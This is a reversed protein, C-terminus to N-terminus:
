ADALNSSSLMSKAGARQVKKKDSQDTQKNTDNHSSLMPEDKNQESDQVKAASGSLSIHLNDDVNNKLGDNAPDQSSAGDESSSEAEDDETENLVKEYEDIMAEFDGMDLRDDDIAALNNDNNLNNQVHKEQQLFGSNSQEDLSLRLLELETENISPRSDPNIQGRM